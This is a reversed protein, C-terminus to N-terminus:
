RPFVLQIAPDRTGVTQSNAISANQAYGLLLDAVGSGTGAPANPQNSFVGNFTWNGRPGGPPNINFQTARADFGAKFSHRGQTISVNALYNFVNKGRVVPLLGQDGLFELGSVSFAPLGVQQPGEPVGPIGLESAGFRDPTAVDGFWALRAYGFRVDSVVKPSWIHTWGTAIGRGPTRGTSPFRFQGSAVTEFSGPNLHDQNSISGRWFFGDSDSFRHDLRVDYQLVDSQLVSNGIFNQAGSSNPLPYLAVVRPAVDSMVSQPIRNGVFPDRTTTDDPLLRNTFPDFITNPNNSFDGTREPTDITRVADTRGRRLRTWQADAFFFTRNPIIPGGLTGGFQNQRFHPKERGSNFFSNADLSDNRM